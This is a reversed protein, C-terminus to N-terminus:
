IDASEKNDREPEGLELDGGVDGPGQEESCQDDGGPAPTIINEEGGEVDFNYVSWWPKSRKRGNEDEFYFCNVSPRLLVCEVKTLYFESKKEDFNRVWVTALAGERFADRFAGVSKKREPLSDANRMGPHTAKVTADLKVSPPKKKAM